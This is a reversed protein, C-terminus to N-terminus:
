EARFSMQFFDQLSGHSSTQIARRDSYFVAPRSGTQHKLFLWAAGILLVAVAVITILAKFLHEMTSWTSTEIAVLAM